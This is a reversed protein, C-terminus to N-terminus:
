QEIAGIQRLMRLEDFVEFEEVIRGRKFRAMVHGRIDVRKGTPRIDGLPGDHTGVCRWEVAMADGEIVQRELTMRLDPFARRYESIMEKMGQIGKIERGGPGHWVIDPAYAEELADLDGASVAREIITRSVRKMQDAQTQRETSM